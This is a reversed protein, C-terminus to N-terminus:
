PLGTWGVGVQVKVCRWARQCAVDEPGNRGGMLCAACFVGSHVNVGAKGKSVEWLCREVRVWLVYRQVAGGGVALGYCVGCHVGAAVTGQFLM